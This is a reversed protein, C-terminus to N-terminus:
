HMVSGMIDLYTQFYIIFIFSGLQLLKGIGMGM